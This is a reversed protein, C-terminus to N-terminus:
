LEDLCYIGGPSQSRQEMGTGALCLAFERDTFMAEPTQLPWYIVGEKGRGPESGISFYSLPILLHLALIAKIISLASIPSRSKYKPPM